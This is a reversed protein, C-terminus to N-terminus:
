EESYCQLFKLCIARRKKEQSASKDSQKKHAKADSADTLFVMFCTSVVKTSSSDILHDM